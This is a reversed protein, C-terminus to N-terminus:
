IRYFDFISCCDSFTPNVGIGVFTTGGGGSDNFMTTGGADILMIEDGTGVFMTAGDDGVFM